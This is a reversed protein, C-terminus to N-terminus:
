WARARAHAGDHLLVNHSPCTAQDADGAHQTQAGRVCPVSKGEFHRYRKTIMIEVGVTEGRMIGSNYQEIECEAGKKASSFGNECLREYLSSRSRSVSETM